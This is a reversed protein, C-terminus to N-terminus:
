MVVPTMCRKRHKDSRLPYGCNACRGGTLDLAAHDLHGHGHDGEGEEEKKEEDWLRLKDPVFTISSYDPGYAQVLWGGFVPLRHLKGGRADNGIVEWASTWYNM